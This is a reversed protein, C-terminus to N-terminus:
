FKLTKRRSLDLKNKFPKKQSTCLSLKSRAEMKTKSYAAHGQALQETEEKTFNFYFYGM